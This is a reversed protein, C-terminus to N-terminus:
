QTLNGNKEALYIATEGLKDKALVDAGNQILLNTIGEKGLLFMWQM